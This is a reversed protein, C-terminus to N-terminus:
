FSADSGHKIRGYAIRSIDDILELGPAADAPTIGHGSLMDQYVYRHLNEFSLNDQSSFNYTVGNVVFLRRQAERSAATSITFQCRYNKAELAGKVTKDDSFLIIISEPKGYINALLDFYHSGLNYLVGGSRRAQGKWSSYYSADRYVSIDMEIVSFPEKDHMRKMQNICSHHRLQLVSYINPKNILAKTDATSIALSKECIVIKGSEHAACIMSFHLDNPTLIVVCEASTTQIMERWTEEGRATNVIDVIKGGVTRIAEAHAPFIFGTGIISFTMVSQVIRKLLTSIATGGRM